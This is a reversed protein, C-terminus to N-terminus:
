TFVYKRKFSTSARLYCFYRSSIHSVMSLVLLMEHTNHKDTQLSYTYIYDEARNGEPSPMKLFYCDLVSFLKLTQQASIQHTNKMIQLHVKYTIFAWGM